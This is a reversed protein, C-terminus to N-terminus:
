YLIYQTSDYSIVYKKLKGQLYIYRVVGSLFCDHEVFFIKLALNIDVCKIGSTDVILGRRSSSKRGM